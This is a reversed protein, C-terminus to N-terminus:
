PLNALQNALYSSTSNLTAVLANLTTFQAKYRATEAALRTDLATQQKGFSTLRSQLSQTNTTFLGTSSDTYNSILSSMNKAFGNSGGFMNAVDSNNTALLRKLKADDMTLTGDSRSSVGLSALTSYTANVGAGSIPTNIVQRIRTFLGMATSDGQLQGATKTTANYGTLTGLDVMLQNYSSVFASLASAATSTDNGVQLNITQGPVAATLNLTVGNIATASTNSSASLGFGDVNFLADQAAVKVSMLNTISTSDYALDALHGTDSLQTTTVVNLAGALGIKQSQLVLHAGDTAQVISANVISNGTANNIADAIGQLTNNASDINVSFSSNGAGITLQGTGLPSSAASYAPSAITGAQALQQISIIHSALAAGNSVTANLSTPVNSTISRSQLAAGTKLTNLQTMMNNLDSTLAGYASISAQDHNVQQTIQQQPKARDANVLNTVMTAVDITGATVASTPVTTAM